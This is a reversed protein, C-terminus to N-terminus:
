LGVRGRDSAPEIPRQDPAVLLGTAEPLRDRPDGGVPCRLQDRDEAFGAYALRAEDGLQRRDRGFARVDQDAPARRVALSDGVPRQAFDDKLDGSSREKSTTAAAV